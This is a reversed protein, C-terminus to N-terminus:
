RNPLSSSVQILFQRLRMFSFYESPFEHRSGTGDIELSSVQSESAGDQIAIRSSASNVGGTEATLDHFDAGLDLHDCDHRGNIGDDQDARFSSSEAAIKSSTDPPTPQQPPKPAKKRKKGFFREM